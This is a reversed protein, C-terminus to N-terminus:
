HPGSDGWISPASTVEILEVVRPEWGEFDKAVAEGDVLPKAVVNTADVLNQSSTLDESYGEDEEEDDERDQTDVPQYAVDGNPVGKSSKRFRQYLYSIFVVLWCGAEGVFGQWGAWLEWGIEKGGAQSRRDINCKSPEDHVILERVVNSRIHDHM